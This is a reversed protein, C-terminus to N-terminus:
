CCYAGGGGQSNGPPSPHENGKTFATTSTAMGVPGARDTVVGVGVEVRGIHNKKKKKTM